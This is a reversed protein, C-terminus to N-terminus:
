KKFILNWRINMFEVFLLIIVFDQIVHYINIFIQNSLIETNNIGFFLNALFRVIYITSYALFLINYKTKRRQWEYFSYIGFILILPIFISDFNIM